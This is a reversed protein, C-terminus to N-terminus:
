LKLAEALQREIQAVITAEIRAVNEDLAEILYRNPKQDFVRGLSDAGVFGYQYRRAYDRPDARNVRRGPNQALGKAGSRGTRPGGFGPRPGIEARTSWGAGIIETGTSDHLKGSVQHVDQKAQREVINAGAQFAGRLNPHKGLEMTRLIPGTNLVKVAMM